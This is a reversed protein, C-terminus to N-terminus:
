SPNKLRNFRTFQGVQTHAVHNNISITIDKFLTQVPIDGVKQISLPGLRDPSISSNIIPLVSKITNAPKSEISPSSKQLLHYM